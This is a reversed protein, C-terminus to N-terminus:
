GIFFKIPDRDILDSTIEAELKDRETIGQSMLDQHSVMQGGFLNTGSYKGRTHAVALKTLALAYRYVWLQSVIDKIPKQIKCSVLGYYISNKSPEPIIKLMQTDPNFRLYPTLALVKERLDLWGKLAQWTVLDYGVNGLLHGFYAQQAITHEITFLTNIGSNSGEQFSSVDVVKRYNNMDYDWGASHTLKYIPNANKVDLIVVRHSNLAIPADFSIITQNLENVISPFALQHSTNNYVQVILNTSNLNHQVTYTNDTGNGINVRTSPSNTAVIVVKFENVGIVYNFRMTISNVTDAFISTYVMENNDKDYVQVLVDRTNLNHTITFINNINDGVYTIYSDSTPAPTADQYSIPYTATDPNASSMMDPTINILRGIPLGVKSVYLDSRFILFEETVGSFKTYYECATDIIQYMQEDSIEIQVLPAGLMNKIRNSLADYSTIKSSFTTSGHFINPLVPM